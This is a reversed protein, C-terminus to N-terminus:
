HRFAIGEVGHGPKVRADVDKKERRDLAHIVPVGLAFTIYLGM